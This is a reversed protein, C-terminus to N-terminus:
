VSDLGILPHLQDDDAESGSFVHERGIAKSFWSEQDHCIVWGVSQASLYDDRAQRNLAHAM